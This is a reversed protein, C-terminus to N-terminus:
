STLAEYALGGVAALAFTAGLMYAREAATRGRLLWVLAGAALATLVIAFGILDDPRSEADTTLHRIVQHSAEALFVAPLLANGLLRVVRSSDNVAAGAAGFVTGAGIGLVVWALATTSGVISSNSGRFMVDAVYYAVVAVVELVIAGLVAQKRNQAWVGFAFAAAAWVAPSNFLNALPYPAHVQGALDLPGFLLGCALAVLICRLTSRHPQGQTQGVPRISTNM